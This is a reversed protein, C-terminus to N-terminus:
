KKKYIINDKKTNKKNRKKITMKKTTMKKTTMKKTTMKKTNRKTKKYGGTKVSTISKIYNNVKNNISDNKLSIEEVKTLDLEEVLKKEDFKLLEYFDFPEGYLKQFYKMYRLMNTIYKNNEDNEGIYEFTDIDIIRTNELTYDKKAIFNGMNPDNQTFGIKRLKDMLILGNDFLSKIDADKLNETDKFIEAYSRMDKKNEMIYLFINKDNKYKKNYKVFTYIEPIINGSKIENYKEVFNEPNKNHALFHSDETGIVKIRSEDCERSIKGIIIEEKTLCNLIQKKIEDNQKLYELNLAVFKSDFKSHNSISNTINQSTITKSVSNQKLTLKRRKSPPPSLSQQPLSLGPRKKNRFAM